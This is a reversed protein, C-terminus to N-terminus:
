DAIMRSYVSQYVLAIRSSPQFCNPCASSCSNEVERSQLHIISIKTMFCGSLLIQGYLRRIPFISPGIQVRITVYLDSVTWINKQSGVTNSDIQKRVFAFRSIFMLLVVLHSFYFQVPLDLLFSYYGASATKPCTRDSYTKKEHTAAESELTQNVDIWAEMVHM